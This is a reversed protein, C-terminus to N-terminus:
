RSRAAGAEGGVGHGLVELLQYPGVQSEGQAPALPAFPKEKVGALFKPPAEQPRQLLERWEDIQPDHALRDLVQACSSCDRM